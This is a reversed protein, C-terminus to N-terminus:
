TELSVILKEALSLIEKLKKSTLSSEVLQAVKEYVDNHKAVARKGPGALELIIARRDAPDARRSLHGKSVMKDATWSVTSLPLHLAEALEKVRCSGLEDLYMLFALEKPSVQLAEDRYLDLRQYIRKLAVALRITSDDPM